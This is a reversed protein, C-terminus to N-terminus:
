RAFSGVIEGYYVTHWDKKPYFRKQIEAPLTEPDLTHKHITICEYHFASQAIYPTSIKIGPQMDFGCVKIKDHDRGSKTGCFALHKKFRDPLVCVSFDKADEMLHHTFRTPRVLVTMVPRHWITGITAWGITMPNPPDGALLLIGNGRLREMTERFYDYPGSHLAM